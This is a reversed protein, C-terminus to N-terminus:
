SDVNLLTAFCHYPTARGTSKCWNTASAQDPFVIPAVTVWYGNKTLLKASYEARLELHENLIDLTTYSKGDDITGPKKSSLQAVWTGDLVGNVFPADAAAIRALRAAADAQPDYTPVPIPAPPLASPPPMNIVV